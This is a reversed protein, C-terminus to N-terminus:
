FTWKIGAKWCLGQDFSLATNSPAQFNLQYGTGVFISLPQITVALRVGPEVFYGMFKVGESEEAGSDDIAAELADEWTPQLLGGVIISPTVEVFRTIPMGYGLGASVDFLLPDEWSKFDAGVNVLAYTIFGRKSINMLYDLDLGIRNGLPNTGYTLAVGIKLDNKQELAYGEKVNMAGSIQYFYSPKTNGTSVGKNNAVVTARVMGQKVSKLNGNRDEKYSYTQFRDGNKVGEKTGIKAAIPRVSIIDGTAKWSPIKKELEYVVNEYALLCSNYMSGKSYKSTSSTGTVDVTTILELDFQMKDFAKKAAAREADSYSEDAWGTTYFENLVDKDAKLKFVNAMCKANYTTTGNSKTQETNYIDLVVIYASNVLPEGWEFAQETVKAAALNQIDRDKANYLGREKIITDDFNGNAQRNFIYSIVEKGLNLENVKAAVNATTAANNGSCSVKIKKTNINNQDYKEGVQFTDFFKVVDSSYTWNREVLVYSVSPRNFISSVVENKVKEQASLTMVSLLSLTFLTFLRKM